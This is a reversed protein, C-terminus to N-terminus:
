KKESRYLMKMASHFLMNVLAYVILIALIVGFVTEFIDERNLIYLVAVVGIIYVFAERLFVQFSGSTINGKPFGHQLWKYSRWTQFGVFGAVIALLFYIHDPM